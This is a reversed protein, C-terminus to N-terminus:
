LERLVAPITKSPQPPQGRRPSTAVLQAHEVLATSHADLLDTWAVDLIPLLVEDVHRALNQARRRTFADRRLRRTMRVVELGRRNQWYAAAADPAFLDLSVGDSSPPTVPEEIPPLSPAPIMGTVARRAVHLTKQRTAAEYIDGVFSGPTPGYARETEAMDQLQDFLLPLWTWAADVDAASRLSAPPRVSM